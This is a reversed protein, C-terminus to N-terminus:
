TSFLSLMQLMRIYEKAKRESCGLIAIVDSPELESTINAKSAFRDKDYVRKLISKAPERREDYYFAYHLAGLELFSKNRVGAFLRKRTEKDEILAKTWSM